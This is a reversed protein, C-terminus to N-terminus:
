SLVPRPPPSLPPIRVDITGSTFAAVTSPASAPVRVSIRDVITGIDSVLFSLPDSSCRCAIRSTDHAGEHDADAHHEHHNGSDSPMTQQHHMACDPAAVGGHAHPRDACVSMMAVTTMALQLTLTVCATAGILRRRIGMFAHVM